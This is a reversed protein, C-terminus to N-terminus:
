IIQSKKRFTTRLTNQYLLIKEEIKEMQIKKPFDSTKKKMDCKIWIQFFLKYIESDFRSRGFFFDRSLLKQTTKGQM